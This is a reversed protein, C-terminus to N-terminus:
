TLIYTSVQWLEVFPRYRRGQISRRVILILISDTCHPLNGKQHTKSKDLNLKFTYGQTNVILYIFSNFM